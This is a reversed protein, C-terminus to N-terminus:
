EYYDSRGSMKKFIYLGVFFTILGVLFFGCIWMLVTYNTSKNEEKFYKSKYNSLDSKCSTLNAQVSKSSIKLNEFEVQRENLKGLEEKAKSLDYSCKAYSEQYLMTFNVFANAMDIQSSAQKSIPDFCYAYYENRTINYPMDSQREECEDYSPCETKFETEIYRVQDHDMSWTRNTQELTISITDNTKNIKFNTLFTKNKFVPKECDPCTAKVNCNINQNTYTEGHTLTREIECKSNSTNKLCNIPLFYNTTNWTYNFTRNDPATLNLDDFTYNGAYVSVSLLIILFFHKNM